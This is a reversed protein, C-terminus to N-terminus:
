LLRPLGPRTEIGKVESDTTSPITEYTRRQRSSLRQILVTDEKLRLSKQPCLTPIVRFGEPNTIESEKRAMPMPVVAVPSKNQEYCM